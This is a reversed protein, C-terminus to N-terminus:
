ATVNLTMVAKNNEYANCFRINGRSRSLYVSVLSMLSNEKNNKFVTYEGNIIKDCADIIKEGIKKELKGIAVNSIASAKKQIAFAKILEIPMKENGIEFNELSRQTQAGWIRQNSVKITGISDKESRYKNM